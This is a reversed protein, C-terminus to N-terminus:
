PSIAAMGKACPELTRSSQKNWGDGLRNARETIVDTENKQRGTVHNSVEHSAAENLRDQSGARAKSPLFSSSTRTPTPPCLKVPIPLLWLSREDKM